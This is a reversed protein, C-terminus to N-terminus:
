RAALVSIMHMANTNKPNRDVSQRYNAIALPKNGADMYAEGLSDYTNASNPYEQVNLQFIKIAEAFKDQRLYLYGLSNLEPEDFNYVTPQSVKLLRYQAIASDIGRATITASLVGTISRRPDLGAKIDPAWIAATVAALGAGTSLTIFLLGAAMAIRIAPRGLRARVYIEFIALPLGYQAFAIFTLTPGAFTSPDFGFPGGAIITTLTISARIFLSASVAIFLRIAWRRHSPINRARAKLIAMTACLMIVLALGTNGLHQSLDGVTGRVWMMYLGALSLTFASLIYFRGIWRHLSPARARIGPILQITGAALLIVASAIHVAVMANGFGQGPIYGHTMSHNWGTLDGRLAKVGYLISISVAFILQGAMIVLFWFQVSAKLTSRAIPDWRTAATQPITTSMARSGALSATSSPTM